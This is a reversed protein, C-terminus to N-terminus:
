FMMEKSNHVLRAFKCVFAKLNCSDAFRLINKHVQSSELDGSNHFMWWIISCRCRDYMDYEIAVGFFISADIQRLVMQKCSTAVNESHKQPSFM